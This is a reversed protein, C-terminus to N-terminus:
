TYLDYLTFAFQLNGNAEGSTSVADSLEVLFNFMEKRNVSANDEADFWDFHRQNLDVFIIHVGQKTNPHTCSIETKGDDFLQKVLLLMKAYQEYKEEDLKGNPILLEEDVEAWFRDM